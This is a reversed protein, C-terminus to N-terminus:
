NFNFLIFDNLNDIFGNDICKNDIFENVICRPIIYGNNSYGNDICGNDSFSNDICRNDIQQRNKQVSIVHKTNIEAADQLKSIYSVQLTSLMSQLECLEADRTDLQSPPLLLTTSPTIFPSPTSTHLPPNPPTSISPTPHNSLPNNYLPAPNYPALM